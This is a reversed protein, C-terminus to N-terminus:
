VTPGDQEVIRRSVEADAGRSEAAALRTEHATRIIRSYKDKHDLLRDRWKQDLGEAEQTWRDMLRVAQTREEPSADEPLVTYRHSYREANQLARLARGKPSWLSAVVTIGLLAVIVLLSTTTPVEAVPM